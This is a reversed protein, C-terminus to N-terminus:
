MDMPDHLIQRKRDSKDWKAYYGRSGDMNNCNDLNWKINPQTVNWQTNCYTYVCVTDCKEIWKEILSYKPKDWDKRNHITSLTATFIPTFIDKCSTKTKKKDHIDLPSIAQDCLLEIKIKKLFIWVTKWLPKVSKWNWWCHILTGKRWLRALM